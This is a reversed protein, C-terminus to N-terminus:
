NQFILEPNTLMAVVPLLLGIGLLELNAAIFMLVLLLYFLYKERRSSHRWIAMLMNKM